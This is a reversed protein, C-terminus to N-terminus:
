WLVSALINTFESSNMLEDHEFRTICVVSQTRYLYDDDDTAQPHLPLFMSLLNPWHKRVVTYKIQSLDLVM